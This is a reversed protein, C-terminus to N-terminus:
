TRNKSDQSFKPDVYTFIIKSFVNKELGFIKRSFFRFMKWIKESFKIKKHFIMVLFNSIKSNKSIEFNEFNENKQWKKKM